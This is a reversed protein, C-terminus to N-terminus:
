RVEGVIRVSFKLCSEFHEVPSIQYLKNREPPRLPLESSIIAGPYIVTQQDERETSLLSVWQLPPLPQCLILHDAWDASQCQLSCYLTKCVSCRRCAVAGCGSVSCVRTRM